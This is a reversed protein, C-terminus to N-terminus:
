AISSLKGLQKMAKPSKLFAAVAAAAVGSIAIGAVKSGNKALFSKAATTGKATTSAKKNLDTYKQELEMRKIVKGLEQNSLKKANYPRSGKGQSGKASRKGWKMGAKGYHSLFDEKNLM